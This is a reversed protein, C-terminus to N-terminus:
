DMECDITIEDVARSLNGDTVLCNGNARTRIKLGVPVIPVSNNVSVKLSTGDYVILLKDTNDLKIKKKNKEVM